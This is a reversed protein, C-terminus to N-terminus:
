RSKIILLQGLKLNNTRMGNLRQLEDISINYRKSLSYLTDGKVVEHTTVESVSEVPKTRVKRPSGLVEEDYKQLNFREILEILKEPYKRDTAYGAARLEKAWGEYDDAEFKFLKAYRSRGTLFTSHDEFSEQAHKYKRFCEQKADDDHYIKEGTWDHCKIGFHNNAEVALRAQGSSSELIGQALTISAPIKYRRMEEEAIAYYNEIYEETSTAFSKRETASVVIESPTEAETKPEETKTKVVVRETRHHANRKKTVIKKKSACGVMMLGLILIILIRKM